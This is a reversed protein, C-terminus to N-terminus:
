LNGRKGELYKSSHRTDGKLTISEFSSKVINESNLKIISPHKNYKEVSRTIPDKANTVDTHLERDVDLEIVSDSFFYNM